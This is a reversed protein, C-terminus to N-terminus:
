RDQTCSHTAEIQFLLPMCEYRLTSVLAADEADGKGAQARLKMVAEKIGRMRRLEDSEDTAPSANNHSRPSLPPISRHAAISPDNPSDVNAISQREACIHNRGLIWDLSPLVIIM